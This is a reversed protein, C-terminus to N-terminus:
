CWPRAGAVSRGVAMQICLYLKKQVIAFFITFKCETAMILCEKRVKVATTSSVRVEHPLEAESLSVRGGASESSTETVSDSEIGDRGCSRNLRGEPMYREESERETAMSAPPSRM